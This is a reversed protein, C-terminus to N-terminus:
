RQRFPHELHHEERPQGQDDRGASSPRRPCPSPPRARNAGVAASDGFASGGRAPGASLAATAAAPISVAIRKGVARHRPQPADPEAAAVPRHAGQAERGVALGEERDAVLEEHAEPLRLGAPQEM